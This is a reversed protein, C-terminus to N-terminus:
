NFADGEDIEETVARRARVEDGGACVATGDDPVQLSLTHAVLTYVGVALILSAVFTPSESREHHM